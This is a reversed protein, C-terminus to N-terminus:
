NGKFRKLDLINFLERQLTSMRTLLVEPADKDDYHLRIEKIEELAELCKDKSATIGGLRIKRYLM